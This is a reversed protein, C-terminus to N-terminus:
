VAASLLQLELMPLLQGVRGTWSHEAVARRHGRTAIAAREAPSALYRQALEVLQAQDDYVVAEEGAAVMRGLGPREYTLLLSGSALCDPLRTSVYDELEGDERPLDLVIASSNYVTNLETLYNVQNRWLHGVASSQWAKDGFVALPLGADDLAALYEERAPSHSGAFCVEFGSTLREDDMLLPYPADPPPEAEPHYIRLSTGPPIHQVRGADVESLHELLSACSGAIVTHRWSAAGISELKRAADASRGHLYIINPIGCEELLHHAEQKQPDELVIGLGPSLGFDIHGKRVIDKLYFQFIEYCGRRQYRLQRYMDNISTMNLTVPTHGLAQLADMVPLTIAPVWRRSVDPLLVNYGRM